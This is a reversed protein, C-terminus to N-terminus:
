TPPLLVNDILRTNGIFAAIALLAGRSTDTLPLLTDPDVVAAYDLRSPVDRAAASPDPEAFADLMASRLADRMGGMSSSATSPHPVKANAADRAAALARSLVLARTREAPSLYRNRSSMALGDPERVIPCAVIEVPLNLDRVVHRLVAVQAADKQGFYARDPQAINFLRAVITAVGRFHGPRSAGDLRDGIPGPDVFTTNGSPYMTEASPAFLIDVGAAELQKRDSDFTRPYQTFDENPGFQTPNVFISAAVLDCQERAATVLSMHGAHLAGMTPVLGLTPQAITRARLEGCAAHMETPTTCILM